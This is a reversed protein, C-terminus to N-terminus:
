SPHNTIGSTGVVLKVLHESNVHAKAIETKIGLITSQLRSVRHVQALVNCQGTGGAGAM